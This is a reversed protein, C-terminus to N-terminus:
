LINEPIHQVLLTSTLTCSTIMQSFTVVGRTDLHKTLFVM